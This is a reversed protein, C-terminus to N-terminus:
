DIANLMKLIILILFVPISIIAIVLGAIALARGKWKTKDRKIKSLAIISFTIALPGFFWASMTLILGILSLTFSTIALPHTKVHAGNESDIEAEKKLETKFSSNNKEEDVNKVKHSSLLNIKENQSLIIQENDVSATIKEESITSSNNVINAENESQEVTGIQNLDSHKKNTNSVLEQSYPNNKSKNLNIHYGSMYVRKQISCSCLAITISLGILSLQKISKM